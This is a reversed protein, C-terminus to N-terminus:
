VKLYRRIALVSAAGGLVIGSGAIISFFLPLHEGYYAFLDFGGLWASSVHAAYWAAPYLLLLVILAALLGTIVGVVVFPGQIYANSAGVLRMVGIEDKATYIALRITAFAILISALAFILVVAFGIEQTASIAGSLKDIVQKNQQYNIRDIISSGEASLAPTDQLTTVIAEYQSPDKAEIELSADLPNEGLESLAQLTLQDSAHRAEFQSLAQDRDTYTTSAVEPLADVKGIFSQSDSDSASTVFYVSIDVKSKISALSYNLLASVFILAGIIALTVTMILVTAVSVAGGRAFNKAGSALMRRITMTDM